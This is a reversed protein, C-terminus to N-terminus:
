KDNLRYKVSVKYSERKLMLLESQQNFHFIMHISTSNSLYDDSRSLLLNMERNTLSKEVKRSV